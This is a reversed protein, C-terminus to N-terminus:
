VVGRDARPTVEGPPTPADLLAVREISENRMLAMGILLSIVHEAPLRRRRITATGTAALADEVWEPALHRAVQEFNGPLFEPVIELADKLRM